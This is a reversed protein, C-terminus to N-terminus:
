KPKTRQLISQGFILSIAPKCIRCVSEVVPGTFLFFMMVLAISVINSNVFGHTVLEAKIDKSFIVGLVTGFLVIAPFYRVEKLLTTTFLVTLVPYLGIIWYTMMNVVFVDFRHADQFISFWSLLMPIAAFGILIGVLGVVKDLVTLGNHGRVNAVLGIIHSINVWYMLLFVIGVINKINASTVASVSPDVIMSTAFTTIAYLSFLGSVLCYLFVSLKPTHQWGKIFEFRMAFPPHFNREADESDSPEKEMFRENRAQNKLFREYRVPSAAHAEADAMFERRYKYHERTLHAYIAPFSSFIILSAFGFFNFNELKNGQFAILYSIPSTMLIFLLYSKANNHLFSILTDHRKAHALEHQVICRGTDDLTKRKNVFSELFIFTKYGFSLASSHDNRKDAERFSVTKPVRFESDISKLLEDDIPKSNRNIKSVRRACLFLAVVIVLETPVVDVHLPYLLFALLIYDHRVQLYRITKNRAAYPM